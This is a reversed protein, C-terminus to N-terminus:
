ECLRLQLMSIEDATEQIPFSGLGAELINPSIIEEFYRHYQIDDIIRLTHLRHITAAISIGYTQRVNVLEDIHIDSRFKGFRRFACSEPLLMASAFCECLCEKDPLKLTVRYPLEPLSQLYTAFQNDSLERFRLLLHALEHLATFRKRETTVNNRSNIVIVPVSSNVFTSVGAVYTDDIDVELIRIGYDRLLEYVSFIPQLGISWKKRLAEAAFELDPYISVTTGKLPSKFCIQDPINSNLEMYDQVASIVQAEIERRKRDPTGDKFRFELAGIEMDKKYFYEVPVMCARAIASLIHESPLILGREIKSITMKSVPHEVMRAVLQDMSLCRLLRVMKVKNPNFENM